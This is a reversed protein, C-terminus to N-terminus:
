PSSPEIPLTFSFRSGQGPTSEVWIQGGHMEVLSKTISLGLGTGRTEPPVSDGRYFKDFVKGLEHPPIGCGTDVVSVQAFGGKILEAEVRVEGESPTFKVANQILNSLIQHLKDRDAQILPLTGKHYARVSVSKERAITQFGEVADAVVEPISVSVRHMEIMGAEIRSLDLLESIMRTLREINYKVRTLYYSQKDTLKGALGDLMNEVYGKISTMPTRLEHSVTSVFTSKLLDLERLKENATQLEQTRERVRQELSQTLQELQQYALANDIAVGINSAITTLLELDEQTCQRAGKDAGVFGLIRQKSKLPACVFSTVGLERAMTLGPPYLRPAAATIDTVLIPWGHLLLEAHITGDDQIPIEVAQVAREMEESMGAARAGFAIGRDNDYLMLLMRTFGVNEVLLHLVTTLLKDLDLTSTIAAGTQNLTTLQKVQKTITEIQTSIALDREKLSRTMQNFIGTLQGVEDRTTPEVSTTLDGQAVQRAVAALSRLPTIIRGALLITTVIGGMIIAITLLVINWIVANLDQRMKEDTVGVQVVGYVKALSQAPLETELIPVEPSRRRVPVAFDYLREGDTTTFQRVVPESAVSDFVAKASAPDPYLPPAPTRTLRKRDILTGKSKAAFIKGEPGTIVVYVVEEVEMVGEIYQNLIVQDETFVGFRSNYALNKVLISGRGFVRSTMSDTHSRIFYWSLSSCTTIIILSIFLVFKTRLSMFRRGEHSGGQSNMSSMAM